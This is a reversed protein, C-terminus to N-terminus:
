FWLWLSECVRFAIKLGILRLPVGGTGYLCALLNLIVIGRVRPDVSEVFASLWRRGPVGELAEVRSDLLVPADHSDEAEDDGRLRGSSLDKRIPASVPESSERGSYREEKFLLRGEERNDSRLWHQGSGPAVEKERETISVFVNEREDRVVCCRIAARISVRFSEGAGCRRLGEAGKSWYCRGELLKVCCRWRRCGRDIECASASLRPRRACCAQMHDMVMVASCFEEV